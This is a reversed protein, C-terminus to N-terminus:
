QAVLGAQVTGQRATQVLMEFPADCEFLSLTQQRRKLHSTIIQGTHLLYSTPVVEDAVSFLDSSPTDSIGILIPRSSIEWHTALDQFLSLSSDADDVAIIVQLRFRQLIKQADDFSAALIANYAALDAQKTIQSGFVADDSIVLISLEGITNKVRVQM